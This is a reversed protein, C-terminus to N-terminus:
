RNDGQTSTAAYQQFRTWVQDPIPEQPRYEDIEFSRRILARADDLGAIEGLAIM